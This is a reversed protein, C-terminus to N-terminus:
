DVAVYLVELKCLAINDPLNYVDFFAKDNQYLKKFMM